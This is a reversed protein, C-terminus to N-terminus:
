ESVPSYRVSASSDFAFWGRLYDFFVYNSVDPNMVSKYKIAHIKAKHCCQALFNPVLYEKQVKASNSSRFMCSRFLINDASTLDIMTIEADFSLKMVDILTGEPQKMELVAVDQLRSVYLFGNGASNFRGQSSVGHPAEWMEVETWPMVENEPRVRCRYFHGNVKRKVVMEEVSDRILRGIKHELALMPYELLHGVFSVMEHETVQKLMDLLGFASPLEEIPVELDESKTKTVVSIQQVQGNKSPTTKSRYTYTRPLNSLRGGFDSIGKQISPNLASSVNLGLALQFPEFIGQIAKDTITSQYISQLPDTMSRIATSAATLGTISQLPDTMSRIATSAAPLSTISQLPDTMGRIATSAATLGTISQLPDTMSRIATSAAPLGTISQLPDTMGRIATSAATLGTISQLPDTMSRIATSAASLGTISQLPDTMGRIATSAATLGTISQLPDTMSRIATSAATLSTISQLHNAVNKASEETTKSPGQNGEQLSGDKKKTEGDM